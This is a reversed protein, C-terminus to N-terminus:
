RASLPSDESPKVVVSNGCALAPAVRAVTTGTPGNWPVIVGVVGLPERTTYSLHGPLTPITYGVLREVAGSWYRAARAAGGVEALADTMVKGVDRVDLEAVDAAHRELLDGWGWLLRVRERAPLAWWQRQAARAAAVAADIDAADGVVFEAIVEGTAPTVSPLRAGGNAAQGSGAIFATELHVTVVKGHTEDNSSSSSAAHPRAPRSRRSRRM